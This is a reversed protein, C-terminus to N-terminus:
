IERVNLFDEGNLPTKRMISSSSFGVGCALEGGGSCRFSKLAARRVRVLNIRFTAFSSLLSLYM